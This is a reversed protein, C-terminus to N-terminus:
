PKGEGEGGALARIATAICPQCWNDAVQAAREIAAAENAIVWDALAAIRDDLQLDTIQQGRLNLMSRIVQDVARAREEAAPSNM